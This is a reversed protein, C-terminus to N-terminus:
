DLNVASEFLYADSEIVMPANQFNKGRLVVIGGWKNSAYSKQHFYSQERVRASFHQFPYAAFDCVSIESNSELDM